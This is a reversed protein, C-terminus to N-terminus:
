YDIKLALSRRQEPGLHDWPCPYMDREVRERLSEPLDDLKINFYGELAHLLSDYESM